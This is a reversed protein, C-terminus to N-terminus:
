YIKRLLQNMYNAEVVGEINRKEVVYGCGEEIIEPLATSNYVIAPIGCAMAEAVVKGFTDETSLHVYVDASSYLKALENIDSIFPIHKINKPWETTSSQGVLVIQMDDHILNSIKMFYKIIFRIRARQLFDLIVLPNMTLANLTNFLIYSLVIILVIILGILNLRVYHPHYNKVAYWGWLAPIFFQINRIFENVSDTISCVSILMSILM